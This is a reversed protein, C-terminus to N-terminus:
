SKNTKARLKSVHLQRNKQNQLVNAHNFILTYFLFFRMERGRMQLNYKLLKHSIRTNKFFSFLCLYTHLLLLSYSIKQVKKKKFIFVCHVEFDGMGNRGGDVNYGPTPIGQAKNWMGRHIIM